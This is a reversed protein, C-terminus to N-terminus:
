ARFDQAEGLGKVFRVGIKKLFGLTPASAPPSSHTQTTQAEPQIDTSPDGKDQGKGITSTTQAPTTQAPTKNPTRNTSSGGKDEETSISPESTTRALTTQAPTTNPMTHTSSGAKDQGTSTSGSSIRVELTPRNEPAEGKSDGPVNEPTPAAEQTLSTPPHKSLMNNSVDSTKERVNHCAVSLVAQKMSGETPHINVLNHLTGAETATDGWMTIVAQWADLKLAWAIKPALSRDCSRRRYRRGNGVGAPLMCGYAADQVLTSWTTRCGLRVRLAPRELGQHVQHTQICFM